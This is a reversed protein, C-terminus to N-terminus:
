HFRYIDVPRVQPLKRQGQQSTRRRASQLLRATPGPRHERGSAAQGARGGGALSLRARDAGVPLSQPLKTSVVQAELAAFAIHLAQHEDKLTQNNQQTEGLAVELNRKVEKMLTVTTLADSLRAADNAIM